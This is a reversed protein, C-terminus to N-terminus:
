NEPTIFDTFNMRPINTSIIKRLFSTSGLGTGLTNTQDNAKKALDEGLIMKSPVVMKAVIRQPSINGSSLLVSHYSHNAYSIHILDKEEFKVAYVVGDSKKIENIKEDLSTFHHIESDSTYVYLDHLAEPDLNSLERKVNILHRLGQGGALDGIAYFAASFSIASFSTRTFDKFYAFAAILAKNFSEFENKEYTFTFIRDALEFLSHFYPTLPKHNPFFGNQEIDSSYIESTGHYFITEDDEFEQPFIYISNILKPIKIKKMQILSLNQFLKKLKIHRLTLSKKLILSVYSNALYKM